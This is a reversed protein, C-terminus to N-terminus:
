TVCHRWLVLHLAVPEAISFFCRILFDGWLAGGCEVSFVLKYPFVESLLMWPIPIMGASTIFALVFFVVMPFTGYGPVEEPLHKDFSSWGSPLYISGYIGLSLCCVATGAISWLSIRRKGVFKVLLMCFINALFKCLGVIVTAWSSDIPAGYAQFIQVLYPRMGAMGCFQTIAFFVTVIFMPKLTRPRALEKLHARLGPSPHSCDVTEAKQCPTCKTSFKSYRQMDAFEKEVVKAPVWGRLWQLAKLAEEDRGRALLWYPTEPIFFIAIMTSLPVILAVLAVTRWYFVTGLLFGLFYGFTAMVGACSTLIGRIKAQSIEGVYTVVPAEMFGSGLGMLIAAIYMETVSTARYLMLWAVIHPFNLLIMARKRGIPETVWGSLLNGIPTCIYAISGFWSAEVENFRLTDEEGGQWVKLGTLVPIAITPFAGALGLDLILLNKAMSALIQPLYMRWKPTPVQEEKKEADM